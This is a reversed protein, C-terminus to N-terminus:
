IEGLLEEVAAVLRDEPWGNIAVAGDRRIRVELREPEANALAERYRNTLHIFRQNSSGVWPRTTDRRALLYPGDVLLDTAGLLERWGPRAGRRLVEYRFGTFTMVGRGAMRAAGALEALVDAQEFPEGGLLTIGEVAAGLM